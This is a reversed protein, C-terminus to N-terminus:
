FGDDVIVNRFGNREGGVPTAAATRNLCDYLLLAIIKLRRDLARLHGDNLIGPIVDRALSASM